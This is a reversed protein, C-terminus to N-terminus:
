GRNQNSFKFYLTTSLRIFLNLIAFILLALLIILLYALPNNEGFTHVLYPVPSPMFLILILAASVNIILHFTKM